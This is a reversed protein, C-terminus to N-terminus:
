ASARGMGFLAILIVAVIACGIGAAILLVLLILAITMINSKKEPQPEDAMTPYSSFFSIFTEYAKAKAMLRDAAVAASIKALQRFAM